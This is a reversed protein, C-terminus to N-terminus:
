HLRRRGEGHGSSKKRGGEWLRVCRKADRDPKWGKECSFVVCRGEQCGTGRAHAIGEGCNRGEGMSTCGGCSEYEYQIDICEFGGDLSPSSAAPSRFSTFNSAQFAGFSAASPIPCATLGPPCLS